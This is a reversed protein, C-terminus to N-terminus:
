GAAVVNPRAYSSAPRNGGGDYAQGQGRRLSDRAVATAGEDDLDVYSCTLALVDGARARSGPFTGPKRLAAGIYVNCNPQSNLRAGEDTIARADM